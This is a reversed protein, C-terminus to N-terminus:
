LAVAAVTFKGAMNAGALADVKLASKLADKLKV